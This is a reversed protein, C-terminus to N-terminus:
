NLIFINVIEKLFYNYGMESVEEKTMVPYTKVKNGNIYYEIKGVVQNEKVPATLKEKIDCKCEIKDEDKILLEIPDQKVYVDVYVDELIEKRKNDDM